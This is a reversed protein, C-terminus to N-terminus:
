DINMETKLHQFGMEMNYCNLRYRFLLKLLIGGIFTQMYIYIYKWKRMRKRESRLVIYDPNQALM